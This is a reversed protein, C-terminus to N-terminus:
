FLLSVAVPKHERFPASLVQLGYIYTLSVKLGLACAFYYKWLIIKIQTCTRQYIERGKELFKGLLKYNIDSVTNWKQPSTMQTYGHSGCWQVHERVCLLQSPMSIKLHIHTLYPNLHMTSSYKSSRYQFVHLAHFYISPPKITKKHDM